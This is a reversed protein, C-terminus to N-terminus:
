SASSTESDRSPKKKAESEMKKLASLEAAAKAAAHKENKTKSLDRLEFSGHAGTVKHRVASKRVHVATPKLIGIDSPMTPTMQFNPIVRDVRDEFKYKYYQLTGKGYGLSEPPSMPQFATPNKAPTFMDSGQSALHNNMAQSELVAISNEHRDHFKSRDVLASNLVRTIGVRRFAAQRDLVNCWNFWYMCVIVFFLDLTIVLKENQQDYHMQMVGRKYAEHWKRNLQDLAQLFGSSNSPETYM